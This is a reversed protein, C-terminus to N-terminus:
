LKFSSELLMKPGLRIAFYDFGRFPSENTLFLLYLLSKGYSGATLISVLLGESVKRCSPGIPLM